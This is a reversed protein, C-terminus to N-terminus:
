FHELVRRPALRPNRLLLRSHPPDKCAHAFLVVGRQVTTNSNSGLQISFSDPIYRHTETSQPVPVWVRLTQSNCSDPCCRSGHPQGNGPRVRPCRRTSSPPVWYGHECTGAADPRGHRRCPCPQRCAFALFYRSLLLCGEREFKLNRLEKLIIHHNDLAHSRVHFGHLETLVLRQHFAEVAVRLCNKAQEGCERAVHRRQRRLTADVLCEKPAYFCLFSGGNASHPGCM